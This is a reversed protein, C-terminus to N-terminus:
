LGSVLHGGDVALVAGTMFRSAPTALLLFPADLDELAGLRRMPVRKVIAEGAPTAFFDENLPTKFYGPALANVRIDHRAWELALVKTMQIVGAKSVAYPAIGGTVRLGVISAINVIAGGRGAARWQRAAARSVQWVGRLNTDLVAEFAGEAMDLAPGRTVIGANNVVVDLTGFRKQAAALATSVSASDTVDLPLAAVDAAGLATLEGAIEALRETRRAAIAV